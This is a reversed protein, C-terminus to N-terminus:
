LADHGPRAPEFFLFFHEIFWLALVLIERTIINQKGMHSYYSAKCRHVHRKADRREGGSVLLFTIVHHFMLLFMGSYKGAVLTYLSM